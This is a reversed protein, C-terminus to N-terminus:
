DGYLYRDHNRSLDTPVDGSFLAKDSVFPDDHTSRSEAAELSMELAERTFQALSIKKKEAQKLVKNKLDTPLMITTREM